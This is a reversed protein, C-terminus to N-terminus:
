NITLYQLNLLLNLQQKLCHLKIIDIITMMGDILGMELDGTSEWQHTSKDPM